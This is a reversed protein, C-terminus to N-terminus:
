RLDQFDVESDLLELPIESTEWHIDSHKTYGSWFVTDKTVNMIVCYLPVVIETTGDEEVPTVMHAFECVKYIDLSNVTESLLKIRDIEPQSLDVAGYPFPLDTDFTTSHADLLFVKM